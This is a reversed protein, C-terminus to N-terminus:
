PQTQPTVILTFTASEVVSGATATVTITSTGVPTTLANLAAQSTGGSCGSITTVAFALMLLAGLRKRRLCFAALALFLTGAYLVGIPKQRVSATVGNGSTAVSVIGSGNTVVTTGTLVPTFTAPTFTCTSNAPLGSCSFTMTTALGGVSNFTFPEVAVQGQKVTITPLSVGINIDPNVVTFTVAASMAAYNTSGAYTATIPHTGLAFTNAYTATGAAGTTRTGLATGGDSFSVSASAIVASTVSSTLTATLTVTTTPGISSPSYALTLTTPAKTVTIGSTTTVTYNSAASGTLSVGFLYFGVPTAATYPDTFVPSVNAADAPLVGQLAAGSIAPLSSAPTGYPVSIANATATIALPTVTLMVSNGGNATSYNADGSYVATYTHAGAIPVFPASVAKGNNVSGSGVPTTGEYFTVSGGIANPSSPPGTLTATLTVATGYTVPNTTPSISLVVAPVPNGAITESFSASTAIGTAKASVAFTGRTGSATLTTSAVGGSVTNVTITNSNNSFVGTSGTAPATFTVAVGSVGFGNQDVVTAQLANAFASYPTTTQNNGGTAAIATPISTNNGTGSVAILQTSTTKGLANDTLTVNSSFSGSGTPSFAIALLCQAGAALTTTASCDNGGSTKQVFGSPMSLGTFTLTTNGFNTVTVTQTASTKGPDTAAFALATTATIVKRLVNNGTDAIYMASAPDLAVGTPAAFAAANALGGDGTHGSTGTGAVTSITGSASIMRVSSSGSCAVYVDGAADVAIQSPGNLTASTAAGGDGTNGATGTGAITTIVGTAATVKRVVNNGTDAIYVNGNADVTVGAPAKLKAAAAQGTDGSYGSTGTGAVVNIYGTKQSIVRVINNGTDAIYLNSQADTALGQPANLFGPPTMPLIVGSEAGVVRVVNNGTDAIYINQAADVAVGSPNSLTASTAAGGDGTHSAVGTGAVRMINGNSALVVRVTNDAAAIYVNNGSDLAVASPRTLTASGATSGDGTTGATGTGAFNAVTGPSLTVAASNGIGTLPLYAKDGVSDAVVLQSARVGPAVPTFTALGSCSTNAAFTAGLTCGSLSGFTFDAPATHSLGWSSLTFSVPTTITFTSAASASGVATAAFVNPLTGIRIVHNGSDALAFQGQPGIAFALPGSLATSSGNGSLQLQLTSIKGTQADVVRVVNNGTDMIYVNGVADVVSGNPVNLTAATAAGGDGGYGLVQTGAIPYANGDAASIMRVNNLTRDTLVVNGRNDIVMYRPGSVSALLAPGGDGTDASVGTGMITNIIGTAVTVKRIRQHGSDAIYINGQQDVAVGNPGSIGVAGGSGNAPLGDGAFATSGDGAITNIIGTAAYVERVRNNTTDAIYINGATDVAIENPSNLKAATALGTDGSFGLTGNGAVTTIINTAATVKRVTGKSKDAIYLNGAADYQLSVPNGLLAKSADGNDGSNGATGVTGIAVSIPVTYQVLASQAVAFTACLCVALPALRRVSRSFRSLNSTSLRSFSM